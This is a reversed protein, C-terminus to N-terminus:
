ASGFSIGPRIVGIVNQDAAATERRRWATASRSLLLMTSRNSDSRSSVEAYIALTEDDSLRKIEKIREKRRRFDQLEIFNDKIGFRM